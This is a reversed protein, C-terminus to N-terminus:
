FPHAYNLKMTLESSRPAFNRHDDVRADSLVVFLDSEDGFLWHTRFQSVLRQEASNWQSFFDFKLSNSLDTGLRLRVLHSTSEESERELEDREWGLSGRWHPALRYNLEVQWSSQTGDYYDGVIARGDVNLSRSPDSGFDFGLQNFRYDGVPYAFGESVVFEEYLREFNTDFFIGLKQDSHGLARVHYHAYRTEFGSDSDGKDGRRDAWNFQGHNDFRRIWKWGPEPTFDWGVADLDVNPRGVFGVEPDFDLGVAEHFYSVTYLDSTWRGRGGWSDRDGGGDRERQTMGYLAIDLEELPRLDADLGAVRNVEERPHEDDNDSSRVVGLFGVRSRRGIDRSLRLVDFHRQPVSDTEATQMDLVGIENRGIKGTLRGGYEIPIAHGADDLGIQRSFFPNNGPSGFFFLDRKELFFERKEPFYLPFRTLNIQQDDVEVQAFDTNVTLDLALESTLGARLDLGVEAEGKWKSAAWAGDDDAEGRSGRALAFPRVLIDRGRQIDELNELRGASSVRLVNYQREIPAWHSQENRVRRQREFNIGMALREARPFRLSRWPIRVEGQWGGETLRCEAQWIGDWETARSGGENRFQEDRRVGNPNVVFFYGNQRDSFSDIALGFYDDESLDADRGLRKHLIQAPEAEHCVFGVYLAEASYLLRVETAATAAEGTDPRQQVFDGAVAARDWEDEDLLGDIRLEIEIREATLSPQAGAHRAPAVFIVFCLSLAAKWPSM